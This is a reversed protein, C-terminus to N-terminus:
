FRQRRLVPRQGEIGLTHTQGSTLQNNLSVKNNAILTSIFLHTEAKRAEAESGFFIRPNEGDAGSSIFFPKMNDVVGTADGYSTWSIESIKHQKFEQRNKLVRLLEDIQGNLFALSVPLDAWSELDGFQSKVLFIKIISRDRVDAAVGDPNETIFVDASSPDTEDSRVIEINEYSLSLELLVRELAVHDRAKVDIVVKKKAMKNPNKHKSLVTTLISSRV